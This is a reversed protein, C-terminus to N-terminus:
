KGLAKLIEDFPLTSDAMGLTAVDTAIEKLKENISRSLKELSEAAARDQRSCSTNKRVAESGSILVDNVAVLAKLDNIVDVYSRTAM